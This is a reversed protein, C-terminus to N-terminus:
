FHYALLRNPISGPQEDKKNGKGTGQSLRVIATENPKTNSPRTVPQIGTVRKKSSIRRGGLAYCSAFIRQEPQNEQNCDLSNVVCKKSKHQGDGNPYVPFM